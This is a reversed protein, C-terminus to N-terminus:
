RRRRYLRVGIMQFHAGFLIYGLLEEFKRPKLEFEVNKVSPNLEFFSNLCADLIRILNRAKASLNGPDKDLGLALNITYTGNQLRDALELV